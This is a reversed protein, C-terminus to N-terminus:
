KKLKNNTNVVKVKKRREKEIVDPDHKCNTHDEWDFIHCLEDPIRRGEFNM